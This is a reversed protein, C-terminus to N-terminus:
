GHCSLAARVNELALLFHAAATAPKQLSSESETRSFVAFSTCRAFPWHLGCLHAIKPSRHAAFRAARDRVLVTPNVCPMPGLAFVLTSRDGILRAAVADLNQFSTALPSNVPEAAALSELDRRRHGGNGQRGSPRRSRSVQSLQVETRPQAIRHITAWSASISSHGMRKPALRGFFRTLTKPQGFHAARQHVSLPSSCCSVRFCTKSGIRSGASSLPVPM